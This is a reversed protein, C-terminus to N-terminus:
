ASQRHPRWIRRLSRARGSAGTKQFFWAVYLGREGCGILGFQIRDNAGLVRAYSLATLAAAKIGERRTLMNSSMDFKHYRRATRAEM